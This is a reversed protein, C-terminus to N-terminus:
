QENGAVVQASLHFREQGTRQNRTVPSRFNADRFLGSDELLQILSSADSSEGRVQIERGKMQFQRVWTGDPLIRTLEDIVDLLRPHEIKKEVIFRASEMAADLQKRLSLVAEADRQATSVKDSLAVAVSRMQALPLILATTVLIIALAALAFNLRNAGLGGAGRQTNQMLNMGEGEGHVQVVDPSLGMSDLRGTLSDVVPRPVVVLHVRIRETEPQRGVVRHAFYVQEAQFPTRRDMEFGLVRHLNEEAALPLAIEHTLAYESPLQLVVKSSSPRLDSSLVDGHGGSFAFYGITTREDDSVRIVRVGSEDPQLLLKPKEYSRLARQVRPPLCCRLGALWWRLFSRGQATWRDFYHRIRRNM